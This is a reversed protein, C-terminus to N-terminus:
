RGTYAPLESVFTQDLSWEAVDNFDQDDMIITDGNIEGNAIAQLMDEETQDNPDGDIELYMGVRAWYRM